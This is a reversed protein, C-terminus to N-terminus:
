RRVGKRKQSESTAWQNYNRVNLVELLDLAESYTYSGRLDGLSAMGQSILCSIVQPINVTSAYTQEAVARRFSYERPLVLPKRQGKLSFALNARLSSERLQRLTQVDSLFEEINERTCPTRESTEPNFFSCCELLDDLLAATLEEDDSVLGYIGRSLILRAIASPNAGLPKLEEEPLLGAACEMWQEMKLAYMQRIIFTLRKGRDDLVVTTENAM